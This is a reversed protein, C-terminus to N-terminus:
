DLRVDRAKEQRVFVCAYEFLRYGSRWKVRACAKVWSSFINVNCEMLSNEFRHLPVPFIWTFIQSNTYNCYHCSRQKNMVTAVRHLSRWPPDKLSRSAEYFVFVCRHWTIVCRTIVRPCWPCRPSPMWSFIWIWNRSSFTFGEAVNLCFKGSAFQAKFIDQKASCLSCM